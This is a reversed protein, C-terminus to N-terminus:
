KSLFPLYFYHFWAAQEPGFFTSGGDKAVAEIWYYYTVGVQATTDVFEYDAGGAGGAKVFIIDSIQSRDSEQPSNSRYVKFGSTGIEQGTTWQVRIKGTEPTAAMDAMTVATPKDPVPTYDAQTLM